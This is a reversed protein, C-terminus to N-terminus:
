IRFNDKMRELWHKRPLPLSHKMLFDYEMKVIRYSNGEEDTIVKKLIGPNIKRKGNEFWEYQSLENTKVVELWEPIDVRIPDDRRLYDLETVEEKTFSPDILYAATDNFYFPNMSAPFFSWLTWDKEMQTFIEDVKQYREERSYQKNFICYQKNTLWICGFCHSCDSLFIGYYIEYSGNVNCCSYLQQSTTGSGSVAYFDACNVGVDFGDYFNSSWSEGGSAIFLNRGRTIDRCFYGNEIDHSNVLMTWSVNTSGYNSPHEESSLYWQEFESKKALIAKKEKLYEEKTYPKNHIHYSKNQLDSCFICEQCGILNSSFWINYSDTIYKSFFISNGKQISKSYYVNESNDEVIFSNYVNRVNSFVSSSYLINEAGIWVSFSLYANKAGFVMDSYNSNQNISYIIIPTLYCKKYLDTLVDFFSGRTEDWITQTINPYKEISVLNPKRPTAPYRTFMGEHKYINTPYWSAFDRMFERWPTNKRKEQFKQKRYNLNSMILM